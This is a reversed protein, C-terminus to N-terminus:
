RPAARVPRALRERLREVAGRTLPLGVELLVPTTAGSITAPELRWALLTELSLVVPGPNILSGSLVPDRVRGDAGVVVEVSLDRPFSRLVEASARFVIHPAELLAPAVVEDLRHAVGGRRAEGRARLPRVELRAAAPGLGGIAGAALGPDLQRALDWHWAAEENRGLEAEAAALQALAAGLLRASGEGEKLRRMLDELLERGATEVQPWAGQQLQLLNARLAAQWSGIADRAEADGRDQATAVIALMALVFAVLGSRSCM